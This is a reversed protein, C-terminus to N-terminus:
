PQLYRRHRGFYDDFLNVSLHALMVGIVAVISLGISFNENGVAMFVAVLAPLASQPLAVARANQIWYILRKM